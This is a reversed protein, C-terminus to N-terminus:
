IDRERLTLVYDMNKKVITCIILASIEVEIIHFDYEKCIYIM